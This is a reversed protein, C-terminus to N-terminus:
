PIILNKKIGSSSIDPTRPLYIVKCQLDDFKGLWDDGMVFVDINNKVIDQNKQEWNEEPIIEDVYSIASLLKRRLEFSFYSQKGKATNFEDTSLGVTLHTGLSKARELLLIHGYHLLDFTGYTIVKEM